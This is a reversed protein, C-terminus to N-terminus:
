PILAFNKSLVEAFLDPEFRRFDHRRAPGLLSAFRGHVEVNPNVVWYDWHPRSRERGRLILQLVPSDAPPLGYGIFAVMNAQALEEEAKNWLQNILPHKYNKATLPPIIPSEYNNGCRREICRIRNVSFVSLVEDGTSSLDLSKCNGCYAWNVSGHLKYVQIGNPLLRWTHSAYRRDRVAAGFSAKPKHKQIWVCRVPVGYQFRSLNISPGWYERETPPSAKMSLLGFNIRQAAKDILLDYNTTVVTLHCKRQLKWLTAIFSRLDTQEMRNPRILLNRGVANVLNDWIRTATPGHKTRAQNYIFDLLWEINAEEERGSLDPFISRAKERVNKSIFKDYSSSNRDMDKLARGLLENAIPASKWIGKTFGAGLFLVFNM